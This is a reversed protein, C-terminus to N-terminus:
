KYWRSFMPQVHIKETTIAVIIEITSKICLYRLLQLRIAETMNVAKRGNSLGSFSYKLGETFDGELVCISYCQATRTGGWFINNSVNEKCVTLTLRFKLEQYTDGTNHQCDIEEKQGSHVFSKSTYQSSHSYARTVMYMTQTCLLMCIPATPTGSLFSKFCLPLPEQLMLGSFIDSFM